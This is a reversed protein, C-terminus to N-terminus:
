VTEQIQSVAALMKDVMHRQMCHFAGGCTPHRRITFASDFRIARGAHLGAELATRGFRDLAGRVLAEAAPDYIPVTGRDARSNGRRVADRLGRRSACRALLDAFGSDPGIGHRRRRAREISHYSDAEHRSSGSACDARGWLRRRSGVGLPMKTTYLLRRQSYHDDNFILQIHYSSYVGKKGLGLLLKGDVAHQILGHRGEQVSADSPPM